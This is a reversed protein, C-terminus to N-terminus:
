PGGRAMARLRELDEPTNVSAFLMRPDGVRQVDRMALRSLHPIQRVFEHAASGSELFQELSRLLGASYFACFPEMGHPSESEPVVADAGTLEARQVIMQLLQGTVFPMDWAVILVDHGSLLGAHLGALGGGGPLSDRVVPVDPLWNRAEEDNASLVLKDSVVSLASVVRDVIRVGSVEELGKPRGGM